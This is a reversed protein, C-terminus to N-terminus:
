VDDQVAVLVVKVVGNRRPADFSGGDSQGRRGGEIRSIRAIVPGISTQHNLRAPGLIVIGDVRTDRPVRASVKPQCKTRIPAADLEHLEIGGGSLGSFRIGGDM